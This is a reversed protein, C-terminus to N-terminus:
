STPEGEVGFLEASEPMPFPSTLNMGIGADAHADVICATVWEKVHQRVMDKFAKRQIPDTFTADCLTLLRGVLNDFETWNLGYRTEGTQEHNRTIRILMGNLSVQVGCDTNIGRTVRGPSWSLEPYQELAHRVAAEVKRADEEGMGGEIKAAAYAADVAVQRPYNQAVDRAEQEDLGEPYMTGASTGAPMAPKLGGKSDHSM